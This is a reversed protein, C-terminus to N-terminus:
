SSNRRTSKRDEFVREISWPPMGARAPMLPVRLNELVTLSAFVRRNEDVYGIGTRVVQYPAMGTLECGNFSVGGSTVRIQDQVVARMTSTKGAGNRGVLCVTEGERVELDVGHLARSQGYAAHLDSLKLM